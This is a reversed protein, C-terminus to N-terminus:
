YHSIPERVFHNELFQLQKLLYPDIQVEDVTENKEEVIQEDFMTDKVYVSTSEDLDLEHLM